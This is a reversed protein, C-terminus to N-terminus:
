ALDKERDRSCCQGGGTEGKKGRKRGWQRVEEPGNKLGSDARATRRLPLNPRGWSLKRGWTGVVQWNNRGKGRKTVWFKPVRGEALRGGRKFWQGKKRDFRISKRSAVTHGM